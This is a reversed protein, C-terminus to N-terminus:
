AGELGIRIIQGSAISELSRLCAPVRKILDEIRNSQVRLVLVSLVHGSLNQQYQLGKDLTLLVDFKGAALSLLEGNRQGAWGAEAVTQCEHGTLYAKLRRPICEDLLVRM